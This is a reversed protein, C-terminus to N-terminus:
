DESAGAGPSALVDTLNGLLSILDTTQKMGLDSIVRWQAEIVQPIVEDILKVGQRTLEIRLSRRDNPEPLRAIL